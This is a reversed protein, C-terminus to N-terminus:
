YKLTYSEVLYTYVNPNIFKLAATNIEVMTKPKKHNHGYYALHLEKPIYIVYTDNIHHANSNPFWSNISEFALERQRRSISKRLSNKGDQTRQWLKTRTTHKEKFGIYEAYRKKYWTRRKLIVSSNEKNRKRQYAKRKERYEPDNQYRERYYTAAKEKIEPNNTYRNRIYAKRGEHYGPDKERRVKYYNNHKEKVIPNKRHERQWERHKINRQVRKLDQEGQCGYLFANSYGSSRIFKGDVELFIESIM